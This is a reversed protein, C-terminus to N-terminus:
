CGYKWCHEWERQWVCVCVGTVTCLKRTARNDERGRYILHTVPTLVTVSPLLRPRFPAQTRDCLVGGREGARRRMKGEKNGSILQTQESSKFSCLPLAANPSATRLTSQNHVGASYDYCLLLMFPDGDEEGAHKQKIRERKGRKEGTAKDKPTHRNAQPWM